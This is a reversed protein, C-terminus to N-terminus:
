EGQEGMEVEVKVIYYTCFVNILMRDHMILQLIKTSPLAGDRVSVFRSMIEQPRYFLSVDLNCDFLENSVYWVM